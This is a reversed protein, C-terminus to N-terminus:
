GFKTYPIGPGPFARYGPLTESQPESWAYRDVRIQIEALYPVSVATGKQKVSAQPM